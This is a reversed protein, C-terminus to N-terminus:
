YKIDNTNSKILKEIIKDIVDIAYLLSNSETKSLRKQKELGEEFEADFLEIQEKVALAHRSLITQQYGKGARGTLSEAMFWDGVLILNRNREIKDSIVVGYKESKKDDLSLFFYLLTTLRSIRVQNAKEKYQSFDLYPDIIIRFGWKRGLKELEVREKRLWKNEFEAVSEEGKRVKWIKNTPSNLPLHFSSLAGIQRFVAEHDSFLESISKAYEVLMMTREQHYYACEYMPKSGTEESLIISNINEWSLKRKLDKEDLNTTNIKIAQLENIMEGPLIGKQTVPLVPINHAMAYGIEQHVWGRLSSQETILPIFIHSNAIFKKIQDQFGRGFTLHKDWIPNLGNKELIDAIKEALHMNQHSYSLFIRYKFQKTFSM